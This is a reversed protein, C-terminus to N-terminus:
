RAPPVRCPGTASTVPSCSAFPEQGTPNASFGLAFGGHRSTHGAAVTQWRGGDLAELRVRRGRTGPLLRGRVEFHGPGFAELQQQRMRLRASVTVRRISSAATGSSSTQAGDTAALPTSTSPAAASWSGLVRVRGSERLPSTLRFRGHRGVRTSTLTTWTGTHTGAFQLTVTQGAEAAATRGSLVLDRGYPIRGSDLKVTMSPDPQQANAAPVTTAADALATASAPIAIMTAGIAANRLRANTLATRGAM